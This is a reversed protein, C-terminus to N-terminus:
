DVTCAGFDHEESKEYDDVGESETTGLKLFFWEIFGNPVESINLLIYVWLPMWQNEIDEM